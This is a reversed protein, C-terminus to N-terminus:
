VCVVHLGGNRGILVPKMRRETMRLDGGGYLVIAVKRGAASDTPRAPRPAKAGVM